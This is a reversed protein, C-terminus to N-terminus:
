AVAGPPPNGHQDWVKNLQSQYYVVHTGALLVFLLGLGGSCRARTPTMQQCQSIRGGTNVITVITAILCTFGGFLYALLAIGPQVVVAPSYERTEENVKYYWYCTYIGLTIIGLLWVGWPNRTKGVRRAHQHGIGMTPQQVQQHVPQYMTQPAPEYQSVGGTPSQPMAPPIPATQPIPDVAQVGASAVHETWIAGNHYRLEYRGSPDPQWGQEM